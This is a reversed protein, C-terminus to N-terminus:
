NGALCALVSVENRTARCALTPFLALAAGLARRLRGADLAREYVLAQHIFITPASLREMLSLSPPPSPGGGAPRVLEESAVMWPLLAASGRVHGRPSADPLESTASLM